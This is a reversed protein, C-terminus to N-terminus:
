IAEFLFPIDLLNSFEQGAEKMDIDQEDFIWKINIPTIEKNIKNLQQLIDFLFKASTSNFYDLQFEFVIIPLTKDKLGEHQFYLLNYYNIVWDLVPTYFLRTNEPRSEGSIIFKNETTNFNVLPTYESPSIYLNAM